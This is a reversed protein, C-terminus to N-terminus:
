NKSAILKPKNARSQAFDTQTPLPTTARMWDGCREYWVSPADSPRLKSATQPSKESVFTALPPPSDAGDLIITPTFRDFSPSTVPRIRASARNGTPLLPLQRRGPLCSFCHSSPRHAAVYTDIYTA